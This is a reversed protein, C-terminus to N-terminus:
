EDDDHQEEANRREDFIDKETSVPGHRRCREMFHTAHQLWDATQQEDFV